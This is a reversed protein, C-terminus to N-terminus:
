RYQELIIEYTKRRKKANEREEEFTINKMDLLDKSLERFYSAIEKNSFVDRLVTEEVFKPVFNESIYLCSNAKPSYFIEKITQTNTKNSKLYDMYEFCEKNKQFLDNKLDKDTKEEKIQLNSFDFEDENVIIEDKKEEKEKKLENNETKLDEIQKELEILKKDIKSVNIEKQEINSAQNSCGTLFLVFATSLIKKM